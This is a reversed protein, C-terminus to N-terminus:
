NLDIWAASLNIDRAASQVIRQGELRITGDALLHIAAEGNRISLRQRSEDWSIRGLVALLDDLMNVRGGAMSELISKGDFQQTM